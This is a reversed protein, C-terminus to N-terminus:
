PRLRAVEQNQNPEESGRSDMTERSFLLQAFHPDIILYLPERM